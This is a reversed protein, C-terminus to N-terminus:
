QCHSLNLDWPLRKSTLELFSVFGLFLDNGKVVALSIRLNGEGM